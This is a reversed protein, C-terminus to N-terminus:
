REETLVVYQHVSSIADAGHRAMFEKQAKPLVNFAPTSELRERWLKQMDAFYTSCQDPTLGAQGLLKSYLEQVMFLTAGAIAENALMRDDMEIEMM